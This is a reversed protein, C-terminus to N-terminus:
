RDVAMNCVCLEKRCAACVRIRHSSSHSGCRGSRTRGDTTGCGRCGQRTEWTWHERDLRRLAEALDGLPSGAEPHTTGLITRARTELDM